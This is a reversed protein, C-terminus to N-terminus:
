PFQASRHCRPSDAPTGGIPGERTSMTTMIPSAEPLSRSKARLAAARTPTLIIKSPTAILGPRGVQAARYPDPSRGHRTIPRGPLGNAANAAARSNRLGIIAFADHPVASSAKCHLFQVWEHHLPALSRFYYTARHLRQDPRDADATREPCSRELPDRPAERGSGSVPWPARIRPQIKPARGGPSRVAQRGSIPYSNLFWFYTM